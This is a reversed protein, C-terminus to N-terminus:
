CLIYVSDSLPDGTIVINSLAIDVVDDSLTQGLHSNLFDNFVIRTEIPNNILGFNVTKQHSELFNSIM